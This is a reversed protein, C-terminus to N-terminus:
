NGDSNERWVATSGRVVVRHPIAEFQPPSSTEGRQRSKLEAVIREVARAGMQRLPQHVTTLAPWIIASLPTDDFGAVSLDRPIDLGLRHATYMAGAAMDDNACILASPRSTAELLRVSCEVGSRFTFHGRETVVDTEALGAEALARLFGGFREEASLHGATGKIFGFRRHGLALLHLTLEYSAQGEDIGVGGTVPQAERGPAICVVPLNRAALSRVLGVHDSFPPTLILGVFDQAELQDLIEASPDHATELMSEAVGLMTLQLGAEGCVRLAGLELGYHYLSDPEVDPDSSYILGLRQVKGGALARAQMNVHYDLEAVAKTVRARVEHSVNPGGNLVRSVTARAVGSLAAVDDITPRGAALDYNRRYFDLFSRGVISGTPGSRLGIFPAARATHLM